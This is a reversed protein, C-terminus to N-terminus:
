TPEGILTLIHKSIDERHGKRLNCSNLFSDAYRHGLCAEAAERLADARAAEEIGDRWEGSLKENLLRNRFKELEAIRAAQARLLAVTAYADKTDDANRPLGEPLVAEKLTTQIFAEVAEPTIDTM